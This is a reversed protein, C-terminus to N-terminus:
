EGKKAAREGAPTRIWLRIARALAERINLGLTAAHVKLAHHDEPEINVTKGYPM